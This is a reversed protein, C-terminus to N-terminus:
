KNEAKIKEAEKGKDAIGQSVILSGFLGIISVLVETLQEEPVDLILALFMSGLGAITYWFKKSRFIDKVTKMPANKLELSEDTIMDLALTKNDDSMVSRKEIINSLIKLAGMDPIVDSIEDLIDPAHQRLFKGIKRDKLKKKKFLM